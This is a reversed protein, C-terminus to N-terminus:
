NALRPLYTVFHNGNNEFLNTSDERGFKYVRGTKPEMLVTNLDNFGIILVSSGDNLTALVPIDQNVYYLMAEMPCGDLELVKANVLNNKLIDVVTNGQELMSEVNVSIGRHQLIMDLCVATSDEATINERTEALNTIYMIQNSTMQLWVQLM